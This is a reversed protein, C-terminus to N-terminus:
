AGACNGSCTDAKMPIRLNRRRNTFVFGHGSTPEERLVTQVRAFLGNFGQRLDVPELAVFIRTATWLSLM